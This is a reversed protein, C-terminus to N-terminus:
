LREVVGCIAMGWGICMTAVGYRGGRRELEPLLTALIRMGTAGLPHGLSIGGGNPNVDAMRDHLGLDSVAQLVVVAFAENVEFVAVDDLALGAKGLAKRVADPNGHLMVVPDVGAVAFSVFRARPELGLQAAREPTCLLAAAAGDVIQSANGATVTGDPRFAPALAAMKARDPQPRITEDAAFSGIPVLEHAFGGGAAARGAREHSAAAYADQEERGIGWREAILEASTGQWVIEHQALLRESFPKAEGDTGLVDGGMAVRSMSEVGCAIACDYVGAMIATAAQLAAQMSSGCMRNVSVGAAEVPLGASLAAIRGINLGQEGMQTVCGCAVDEIADEAVGTRDVLARITDALLDDPRVGALSGGRRGIPTRVADVIVCERLNPL